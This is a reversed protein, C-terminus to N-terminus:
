TCQSAGPDPACALIRRTWAPGNSPSKGRRRHSPEANTDPRIGEGSIGVKEIMATVEQAAIVRGRQPGPVARVPPVGTARIAGDTVRADRGHRRSWLGLSKCCHDFFNRYEPLPDPHPDGKVM